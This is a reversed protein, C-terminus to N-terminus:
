LGIRASTLTDNMQVRILSRDDFLHILHEKHAVRIRFVQKAIVAGRAHM